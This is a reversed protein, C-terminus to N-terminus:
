EYILRRVRPANLLGRSWSIVAGTAVPDITNNMIRAFAMPAVFVGMFTLAVVASFLFRVRTTDSM